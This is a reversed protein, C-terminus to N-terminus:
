PFGECMIQLPPEADVQGFSSLGTRVAAARQGALELQLREIGSAPTNPAAGGVSLGSRLSGQWAWQCGLRYHYWEHSITVM